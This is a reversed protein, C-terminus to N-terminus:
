LIWVADCGPLRLEEYDGGHFCLIKFAQNIKKISNITVLVHALM